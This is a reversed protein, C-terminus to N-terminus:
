RNMGIMIKLLRAARPTLRTRSYLDGAKRIADAQTPYPCIAAGIKALGIGNNMALVVAQLSEGAHASVLTAGLIKDTGKRVHVRFFGETQEELIARDVGGMPVTYTDIAIGRREAARADMGVHALEPSTYTCHPITIASLRKRGFFLANQIVARAAFDAAHTFKREMCVDGCAFIRANATRLFDDVHVGRKTDYQVRAAELGLGEVNPARGAGLLIADFPLRETGKAGQAIAEGREVREIVRQLLVRVGDRELAGRVIAGAEPDERPLIENGREVLTVTSGLRQFAQSLEVGIPGAGIVLL